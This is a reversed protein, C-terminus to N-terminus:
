AQSLLAAAHQSFPLCCILATGLWPCAGPPDVQVAVQVYLVRCAKGQVPLLSPLALFSENRLYCLTPSQFRSFTCRLLSAKYLFYAGLSLNIAASVGGNRNVGTHSYYLDALGFVLWSAGTVQTFSLFFASADLLKM